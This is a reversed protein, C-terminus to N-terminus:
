LPTEKPGQELTERVVGINKMIDQAIEPKNMTYIHIGAVGWSLLDIIQETAYAIGAQRLAEPANEYRALIRAFKPPVSAGCLSVMRGIQRSNLVPMIGVSVPVGIELKRLRDMFRFFIENDFFLQTVLFDVGADVKEKLHRLDAELDDCEVHGEPYAAAGVCFDGKRSNRLYAVLDAAYRFPPPDLPPCDDRPDGRLALVNTIGEQELEELVEELDRRTQGICTLHALATLGWRNQAASAIEVTRARSSGGAGYTVSVYDPNLERLAGLTDLLGDVRVGPKPPFVEFSIVPRKAAFLDKIHRAM